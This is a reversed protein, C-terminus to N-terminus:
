HAHAIARCTLEDAEMEIAAAIDGLGYQPDGDVDRCGEAIARLLAVVADAPIYPRGDATAIPLRSTAHATM